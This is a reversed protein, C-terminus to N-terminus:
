SKFLSDTQAQSLKKGSSGPEDHGNIFAGNIEIKKEETDVSKSDKSLSDGKLNTQRKLPLNKQHFSL